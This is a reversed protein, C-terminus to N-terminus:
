AVHSQCNVDDPVFGKRRLLYGLASCVRVVVEGFCGGGWDLGMGGM